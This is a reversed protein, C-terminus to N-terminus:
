DKEVTVKGTLRNTGGGAISGDNASVSSTVRLRIYLHSTLGSTTITIAESLSASNTVLYQEAATATSWTSGDASWELSFEKPGTNSSQPRFSVTVAGGAYSSVPITMLWHSGVVEWGGTVVVYNNATNSNTVYNFAGTATTTLTSNSGDTSTYSRGAVTHSSASGASFDWEALIDSSGGSAAAQSVTVTQDVVGTGSVTITTNRAAGTNPAATVTINENDSGTGSSVQCWTDSSPVTVTWATNSSIAFTKPEGAAVFSLSSPSVNLTPTPTGGTTKVFSCNDIVGEQTNTARVRFLFSAADAPATVTIVYQTWTSGAAEFTAAPQLGDGATPTINTGTGNVFNSWLRIGQTATGKTNEKYWFSVEYTAGPEIGPITQQLNGTGGGGAIKVANSGDQAGTTIKTLTMNADKTWNDPVEADYNEFNGNFLLNTASGGGGAAQSITVTQDAVGTGSVTITTNRAAGSNATTTVSINGNDNGTGPTVQCWTDASTVTWAINSTIAFTKTEGTAVFSLSSPSVTLTPTPAGGGEGVIKIDDLRYNSAVSCNFRLSLTASAPIQGVNSTAVKWTGSSANVATYTVPTWTNGDISQEVTFIDTDLPASSSNNSIGFTLILDTAGATNLGSIIFSNPVGTGFFVCNGGSAGDYGASATSTRINVTATSSTYVAAPQGQKLWGDYGAVNTNGSVATNGINEYYLIQETGSSGAAQEVVLQRTVANDNTKVTITATRATTATNETYNVVFSGNNSGTLAPTITCWTNSADPTITWDTNSTINITTNGDSATTSISSPSLSLMSGGVVTGGSVLRMDDIRVTSAVNCEWKFALTTAGSTPVVTSAVAWTVTGEPAPQTALTWNVPNWSTGGDTSFSLNLDGDVFPDWVNATTYKTKSAGFSLTATEIGSIAINKVIFSSPAGGFFVSNPGSAGDYQGASSVSPRISTNTGEYTVGAGGSGAKKWETFEAIVPYPSTTATTGADEYWIAGADGGPASQNVVLMRTVANDTTKVTITATRAATGTNETYSVVFSGNNSGSTTSVTCWTNSADPTVTWSTNSSVNVTTSGDAFTANVPSPSVSLSSGGTSGGGVLKMDDLRVASAVNCEWKFALSGVGTTPIVAKVLAWTTTSEGAPENVFDWDADEWSTGGDTSYSVKLDGAAFPDWVNTTTYKVKSIGFSLTATAVNSIEINKAIFTAPAGGFFINNTGSAGDYHNTSSAVSTRVSSNTGEYTANGGGVGGKTWGAFEAVSPWPSSTSMTGMHEIWIVELGNQVVTIQTAITSTKVRITASREDDNGNPAVTLTFEGDNNGSTPSALIWNVDSPIEVSWARNATVNVQFEGGEKTVSIAPQDVEITPVDPTIEEDNCSVFALMLALMLTTSWLLPTALLKQFRNKKM